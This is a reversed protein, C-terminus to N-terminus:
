LVLLEKPSHTLVENQGNKILVDDEIRVGCMAPIYIGPEITIVNGTQLRAASRSSIRPPEHIQLGLGHGLSHSFYRGYGKKKIYSRAVADLDRALVGSKVHELARTQADLVTQYINKQERTPRGVAVTRTLDSYYGEVICGFDLTVLEGKQIKKPTARGHPLSGRTGSAVITEFADAEAGHKRQRYSIEAAIDLEHIGPRIIGLIEQFVKDTIAAARKIKQIESPDKVAAIKEVMGGKTLFTVGPFKSKLTLFTLYPLSSGDIGIRWGQRLLNKRRMEDFLSDDAIFVRWGRAQQRAQMMYRGDTILFLSRNTVLGIGHSGSFNSFYRLHPTFTILFADLGPNAFEARLQEIRSKM